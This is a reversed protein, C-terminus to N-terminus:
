DLLKRVSAGYEFTTRLIKDAFKEDSNLVCQVIVFIETISHSIHPPNLAVSMNRKLM